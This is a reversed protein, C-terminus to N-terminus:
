QRCLKSEAGAALSPPLLLWFGQKCLTREPTSEMDAALKQVQATPGQTKRRKAHLRVRWPFGPAEFPLLRFYFTLFASLRAKEHNM